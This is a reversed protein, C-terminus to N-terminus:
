GETFAAALLVDLRRRDPPDPDVGLHALYRALNAAAAARRDAEVAAPPGALAAILLQEVREAEIEAAAVRRRLADTLAADVPSLGAKANRRARRLPRVVGEHWAAAGAAVRATETPTLRRGESGAFLAFLLLNVDLGHREQLALCADEVGPRAYVALSFDWFPDATM